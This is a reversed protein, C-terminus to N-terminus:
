ELQGEFPGRDADGKRQAGEPGGAGRRVPLVRQVGHEARRAAVQAARADGDLLGRGAGDDGVDRPLLRALVPEGAAGPVRARGGQRLQARRLAMAAHHRANAMTDVQALPARLPAPRGPPRQPRRQPTSHQTLKVSALFLPPVSKYLYLSWLSVVCFVQYKRFKVSPRGLVHDPIKDAKPLPYVRFHLDHTNYRDNYRINPTTQFNIPSDFPPFRLLTRFTPPSLPSPWIKSHFKWSQIWTFTASIDPVPVVSTICTFVAKNRMQNAASAIGFYILSREHEAKTKDFRM